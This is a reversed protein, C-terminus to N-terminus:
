ARGRTIGLRWAKNSVAGPTVQLIVAADRSVRVGGCKYCERLIKIRDSTWFVVRSKDLGAMRGDVTMHCRRCLWVWHNPIKLYKQNKNHPELTVGARGCRTCSKPKLLVRRAWRHVSDRCGGKWHSNNSGLQRVSANARQIQDSWRRYAAKSKTRNISIDSGDERHRHWDEHKARCKLRPFDKTCYRCRFTM